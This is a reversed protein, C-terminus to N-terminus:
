VPYLGDIFLSTRGSVLLSRVKSLVDYIMLESGKDQSLTWALIGPMGSILM